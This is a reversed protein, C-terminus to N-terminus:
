KTLIMKRSYRFDSAKLTYLYTGSSMPNGHEDKGDWVVEYDGANQRMNVLRRVLQGTVNYVSLTVDGDEKIIYHIMTSPNFPNPYNQDLAYMTPKVVAIASEPGHFFQKGDSSIDALWYYYVANEQINKDDFSYSHHSESNIAGDVIKSTIQDRVGDIKESRYVHFGLNETESATEWRLVIKGPVSTASFSVLEVPSTYREVIYWTTFDHSDSNSQLTYLQSDGYNTKSPTVVAENWARVYVITGYRFFEHTLTAVFAGRDYQDPSPFGSGIHSIGLLVDDVTPNGLSDADDAKGNPGAWIIQILDGGTPNGQLYTHGDFDIVGSSSYAEFIGPLQAYIEEASWMASLFIGLCMLLTKSKM